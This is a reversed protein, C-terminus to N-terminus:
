GNKRKTSPFPDVVSAKGNAMEAVIVRLCSLWSDRVAKSMRGFLALLESEALSLASASIPSPTLGLLYDPSTRLARALMVITTAKVEEVKTEGSEIVSYSPQSIGAKFAVEKQTMDLSKRLARARTGMTTPTPPPTFEAM